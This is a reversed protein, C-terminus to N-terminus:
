LTFNPMPELMGGFPSNQRQTSTSESILQLKGHQLELLVRMHQTAGGRHAQWHHEQMMHFYEGHFTWDDYPGISQM